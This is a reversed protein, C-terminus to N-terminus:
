KKDSTYKKSYEKTENENKFKWLYKKDKCKQNDKAIDRIENEKIGTKRSAEAISIYESILESKLLPCLNRSLAM